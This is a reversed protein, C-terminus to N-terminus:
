SLNTVTSPALQQKSIEMPRRKWCELFESIMVPLTKLMILLDISFSVHRAYHIDMEIMQNFTTRNKGNVQWYGTLGPLVSVREQQWDEYRRFEEVTCPRPGVLSMEGRLVNFIQPLEDLGSARLLRGIPILRPDGTADLKTMPREERMLAELYAEHSRTEANVKMSRFKYIMFVQGGQGVRAQRYFVPGPSVAKIGARILLMVPLWIPLALLILALDLCRKWAPVVLPKDGGNGGRKQPFSDAMAVFGNRGLAAQGCNPGDLVARNPRSSANRVTLEESELGTMKDLNRDYLSGGKTM